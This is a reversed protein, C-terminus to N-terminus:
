TLRDYTVEHETEKNFIYETFGLERLQSHLDTLPNEKPKSGALPLVVNPHSPDLRM